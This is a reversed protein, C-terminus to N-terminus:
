RPTLDIGVDRHRCPSAQNSGIDDLGSHFLSARRLWRPEAM